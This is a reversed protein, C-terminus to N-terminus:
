TASKQLEEFQSHRIPNNESPDTLDFIYSHDPSNPFMRERHMENKYVNEWAMTRNQKENKFVFIGSWM